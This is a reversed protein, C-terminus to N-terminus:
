TAVMPLAQVEPTMIEADVGEESVLIARLKLTEENIIDASHPAQFEILFTTTDGPFLETVGETSTINNVPLVGLETDDPRLLVLDTVELGTLVLTGDNTIQLMLRGSECNMVGCDDGDCDAFEASVGQPADSAPAGAEAMSAAVGDGVHVGGEACDWTNGLHASVFSLTMRGPEPTNTPTEEAAPDCALTFFLASLVLTIYANRKM